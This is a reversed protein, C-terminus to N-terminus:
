SAKVLHFGGNEERLKERKRAQVLSYVVAGLTNRNMSFARVGGREAFSSREDRNSVFYTRVKGHHESIGKVYIDGRLQRLFGREVLICSTSEPVQIRGNVGTSEMRSAVNVTAGWIDYQPKTAGIVGAIVPGHAVGVRLQFSNGTQTNIQRLTEEMALAFLVLESLHHWGDECDQRDPSLGSAAMYSSGITKIKEVEQFYCEDLLEDFDSIIHNLLRLCEVHQHVLEKQEYFDSFGPLSAFLVGVRQYSQSYLEENNADRELFHQAVHAPLINLLLCENHERQEKMDEVEKGAQLRWLFDLRAMAELQADGHCLHVPRRDAAPLGDAAHLEAEPHTCINMDSWRSPPLSVLPETVGSESWDCWLINVSAIVSNVAIATLMLVTRAYKTEHVWCCLAQLPAPCHKFEEGLTLLLLLFYVCGSLLFQAATLCLRPAPILVQVAMLLIVLIFSCVMNSKFLEDRMQSYKGEMQSDKFVQTFTTIHEKRMRESSRVEMAQCIRKNVERSGSRQAAIHNPLQTLSGNTFTALIFNMGLIDGFPLEASWTTLEDYSPRRARPPQAEDRTAPRILYTDINHKRLFDSRDQGHGQEAQYIGGLCDLTAQSIHVQGPVGAAELCNAIDVDWSWIDFQWKQLGLVGCLVSGSHVGIRMDVDQQLERRVYRITSIMSLGMEVCCRAHGRQPEPVGSVCYYCDGLIKIRLCQHEEALRDFRGFLENLTKVLEQASLILSLSTFGIIDAFLISVDKYHHIYIKHFQQPLLYEDVAAMDAIMELVLFRPLISMVLREQRQNERELRVRGEICRRTELFSQRQTRDSLYHIFVGATNMALYLLAKSLVRRILFHNSYHWWVDVLLQLTSTIAGAAISWPLPLTLLAYTSFLTFFVYWSYDTEGWSFVGVLVQVTQSLWTVVSLYRLWPPSTMVEKRAVSLGCIGAWLLVSLGTLWDCAVGGWGAPSAVLSVFLRIFVDILNTVVLSTRRQASSFQQYTLELDPSKFILQMTPIFVGRVTSGYSVFFDADTLLRQAVQTQVSVRQTAPHVRAASSRRKQWFNGRSTKNRIQRNIDAIYADTVTIRHRGRELGGALRLSYLNHQDIINRVASQWLLRKRRLGHAPSINASFTIDSAQRASECDGNKLMNHNDTM